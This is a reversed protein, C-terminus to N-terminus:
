AAMRRRLRGAVCSIALMWMTSPEPIQSVDHETLAFALGTYPASNIFGNPSIADRQIPSISFIFGPLLPTTGNTIVFSDGLQFDPAPVAMYLALNVASYLIDEPGLAGDSNTDGYLDPLRVERGFGLKMGIFDAFPTVLFDAGLPEFAVVDLVSTEGPNAVKAYQKFDAVFILRRDFESREFGRPAPFTVKGNSGIVQPFTHGIVNGDKDTWDVFVTTGPAGADTVVGGGKINGEAVLIWDAQLAPSTLAILVMLAIPIGTM